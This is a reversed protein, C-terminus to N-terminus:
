LSNFYALISPMTFTKWAQDDSIIGSHGTNQVQKLEVHTFVSSIRQAWSVPYAQNKESYFFLVSHKFKDIGRSLDPTHERGVEFMAANIVAGIRWYSAAAADQDSTINNKSTLIAGAYDLRIHQDRKASIFQDKYAADNLVENWLSFATSNSVYTKIDDWKLGGPEGVVLGQVTEPYKGTYATALMGGWSHGILFVKQTPRTRYHAIVGSLEDYYLDLAKEGRSVYYDYPFRQSLGSGLQDYFVVRYGHNALERCNLMYRYDSGPGGHICIVLTSDPHGFAEAHLLANNVKIAPLQSNETVTLTVLNGPEDILREESCGVLLLLVLFNLFKVKM